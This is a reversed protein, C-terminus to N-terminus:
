LKATGPSGVQVGDDRQQSVVYQAALALIGGYGSRRAIYLGKVRYLTIRILIQGHRFAVTGDHAAQLQGKDRAQRAATQPAALDLAYTDGGVLAAGASAAGQKFPGDRLAALM